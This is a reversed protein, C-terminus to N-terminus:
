VYGDKKLTTKLVDIDSTIDIINNEYIKSLICKLFEIVSLISDKIESKVNNINKNNVASSTLEIYSNILKLATPINYELMKDLEASNDASKDIIEKFLSNLQIVYSSFEYNKIYIVTDNILKNYELAKAIINIEEKKNLSVRNIEEDYAYSYQVEIADDFINQNDKEEKEDNKCCYFKEMYEKNYKLNFAEDSMFSFRLLDAICLLYPIGTWFFLVYLIGRKTQGLYFKQIGIGGCILSVASCIVTKIRNKVLRSEKKM